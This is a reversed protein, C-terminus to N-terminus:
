GEKEQLEVKIESFTNVLLEYQPPYNAKLYSIVETNNKWFTILNDATDSHMERVMAIMQGVFKEAEEDDAIETSYGGEEDVPKVPEQKPTPAAKPVAKPKAAAKPKATPEVPQTSDLADHEVIEMLAVWLYRRQYTEVAGLNQIPHCGKLNADAHPSDIQFSEDSDTSFVSLRAGTTSFSVLPVLGEKNLCNMAPILFDGLEFYSYGAFKNKGTKTLKLSHFEKRAAALKGYINKSM